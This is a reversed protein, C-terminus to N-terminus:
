ENWQAHFIFVVVSGFNALLAKVYGSDEKFAKVHGEM